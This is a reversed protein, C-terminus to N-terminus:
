GGGKLAKRAREGVDCLWMPTLSEAPFVNEGPAGRLYNNEDAYWALVSRLLEIEARLADEIPRTNWCEEAGSQGLDVQSDAGCDSCIVCFRPTSFSEIFVPEITAKFGGCFPCPKLEDNM